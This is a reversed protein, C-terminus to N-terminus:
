RNGRPEVWFAGRVDRVPFGTARDGPYRESIRAQLEPAVATGHCTTCLEDLKIPELYGARGGGLDFVRPATLSPLAAEAWTPPVNAPNRLRLSTRGVTVGDHSARQAIAPAEKACVEIAAEPGKALAGVLAAKLEKKFPLLSAAARQSVDAEDLGGCATLSVLLAPLFRKM